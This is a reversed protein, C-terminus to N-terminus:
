TFSEIDKVQIDFHVGVAIAILSNLLYGNTGISNVFQFNKNKINVEFDTDNIDLAKFTSNNKIGCTIINSFDIKANHLYEDDNNIILIGDKKLGSTIELKAKLINEMSGLNEIHVPLINTIM